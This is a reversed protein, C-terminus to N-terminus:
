ELNAHRPWLDEKTKGSHQWLTMFVADLLLLVFQEYLSGAYQKSVTDSFDTKGAAPIHLILDASKSLASEPATTIAIVKAKNQQAKQAPILVTATTGSGSAAILIDGELIAPTVVEGVVYVQYGLHMFRMAAMKLALGSRGTGMFFIRKAQQIYDICKQLQSIDIHTALAQQETIITQLNSITAPGYNM